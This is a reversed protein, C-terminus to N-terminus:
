LKKAMDAPRIEYSADTQPNRLLIGWDDGFFDDHAMDDGLRRTDAQGSGQM